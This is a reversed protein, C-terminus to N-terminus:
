QSMASHARCTPRGSPPTNGSCDPRIDRHLGKWAFASFKQTITVRKQQRLSRWLTKPKQQVSTVGEVAAQTQELMDKTRRREGSPRFARVLSYAKAQTIKNAAAGASLLYKGASPDIRTPRGQWVGKNAVANAGNNGPDGSHGKVKRISM